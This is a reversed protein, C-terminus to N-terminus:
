TLAVSDSVRPTSHPATAIYTEGAEGGDQAPEPTVPFWATTQEGAAEVDRPVPQFPM